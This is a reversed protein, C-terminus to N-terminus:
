SAFKQSPQAQTNRRLSRECGIAVLLLDAFVSWILGWVLM